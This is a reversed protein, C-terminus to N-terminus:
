MPGKHCLIKQRCLIEHKPCLNCSKSTHSIGGYHVGNNGSPLGNLRVFGWLKNPIKGYGQGWDIVVWDRWQSGHIKFDARFITENRSYRTKMTLKGCHVNTVDQLGIVFDIFDQECIIQSWKGDIKKDLHMHNRGDNDTFVGFSKGELKECIQKQPNTILDNYTDIYCKGTNMDAIYNLDEPPPAFPDSDFFLYDKPRQIVSLHFSPTTTILNSEM